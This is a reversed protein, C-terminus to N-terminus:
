VLPLILDVSIKLVFLQRLSHLRLESAIAHPEMADPLDQKNAFVLIPVGNQIENSKLVSMLEIRSEELRVHDNWDVVWIIGDIEEFRRRWLPRIKGQGGVDWVAMTFGPVPRVTEANFGITPITAITEDLKLKYLITTKGAGDLGLLIIHATTNTWDGVVGILQFEKWSAIPM